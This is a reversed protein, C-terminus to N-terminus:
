AHLLVGRGDGLLERQPCDYGIAPRGAGHGRTNGRGLAENGSCVVVVDAREMCPSVIPLAQRFRRTKPSTKTIKEAYNAHANPGAVTLNTYPHTLLRTAELAIEKDRQLNSQASQM